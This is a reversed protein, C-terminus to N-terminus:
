QQFLEGPKVELADAIRMVDDPRIIKYDNVMNCFAQRSYGARKAIASQKYGKEQIVRVINESVPKNGTYLKKM